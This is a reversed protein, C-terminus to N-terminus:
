NSLWISNNSLKQQSFSFCSPFLQSTYVRSKMIRASMFCDELTEFLDLELLNSHSFLFLPFFSKSVEIKPFSSIQKIFFLRCFFFTSCYVKCNYDYYCIPKCFASPSASISSITIAISTTRTMLLYSIIDIRVHLDYGCKTATGARVRRTGHKCLKGVVM